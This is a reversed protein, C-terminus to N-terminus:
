QPPSREFFRCKEPRCAAQWRVRKIGYAASKPNQCDIFNGYSPRVPVPLSTTQMFRCFNM